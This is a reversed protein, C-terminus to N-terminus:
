RLSSGACFQSRTRGTPPAPFRPAAPAFIRTNGRRGMDLFMQAYIALDDATSFVGAHGAVGGMYRATPDHVVGRLPKGTTADIETPAIRNVWAAPPRFTTDKMGLPRYIQEQVFEDLPKGSVRRVIEGLLEFNIDSYVFKAGRPDAPKDALAKKIGTEYGSWVPELDLDPRLGSFHIMLDRVTIDSTGGQFEPLYATVPDDLRVRGTEVLKMMAPTTAVVKTLSAVDYITDVTAAEKAPVLARDGYAKKFVVKGNHGVLIVAGPMYGDKIAQLTVADLDAAASFTQAWAGAAILALLLLQKM